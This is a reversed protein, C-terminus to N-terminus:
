IAGRESLRCLRRRPRPGSDPPQAKEQLEVRKPHPVRLDQPLVRLARETAPSTAVSAAVKGGNQDFKEHRLMRRRQRELAKRVLVPQFVLKVRGPSRSREIEHAFGSPGGQKELIRATLRELAEEALWHFRPPEQAQSDVNGGSEPLRVLPIQDM